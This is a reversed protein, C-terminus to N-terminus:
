DSGTNGFKDCIMTLAELWAAAHKSQPSNLQDEEVHATSILTRVFCHAACDSVHYVDVERGPHPLDARDTVATGWGADNGFSNVRLILGYPPTAGQVDPPPHRAPVTVATIISSLRARYSM